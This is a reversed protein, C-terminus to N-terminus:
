KTEIEHLARLIEAVSWAQSICGKPLSPESGDFIESVTGLGGDGLHAELSELLSRAEKLSNRTKGYVTLFASIYHGILWVWVTGQHYASDRRYQNGGYRGIYQSDKENLSRLGHPTLLENGVVELVKRRRDDSDLIPFPLSLAFIQNPRISADRHNFDIYDFLCAQEENWFEKNFSGRAKEALGSYREQEEPKKARTALDEMIKLANYWLCNVEVPKGKRPTVVWDDVKADMWTLQVGEQGGALLGDQDVMINFRTGKLHHDVIDQLIPYLTELVFKEDRTFRLYDFVAIFFWLTGDINNYEPEEGADPFRNPIMGQTCYSAFTGLITKADEFRGTVLTLGTLSIMTDRGWDSFWHYGAIVSKLDGERDVIFSNAAVALKKALPDKLSMRDQIKKRRKKEGAVLAPISKPDVHNTSAALGVERAQGIQSLIYFPSWLDEKYDLGRDKERLYENNRYWWSKYGATGGSFSVFVDVLEAFPKVRAYDATIEVEESLDDRYQILGHYDRFAFQPRLSLIVDDPGELLRYVVVTTNQGHIMVVSKELVCSRIRFTFVPFPDLSFKELHEYGKPHVVMPYQNVGLEFTVGEIILNEEIKSLFVYREVPPKLSATLLGHYRRTNLGIITSSAFGGLGNTEIWEKRSATEVDSLVDRGFEIKSLTM